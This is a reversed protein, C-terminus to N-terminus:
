KRLKFMIGFRVTYAKEFFRNDWGGNTQQRYPINPNAVHLHVQRLEYIKFPFNLDITFRNSVKINIRPILNFSAGYYKLFSDFVMSSKSKYEIDVYYPNLGIGLNFTVRKLPDSVIKNLEYRFSYTSITNNVDDNKRFGYSLPFQVKYTSKSIEPVFVEFEHFLKHKVPIHIAITFRTFNTYHHNIPQSQPYPYYTATFVDTNQYVKLSLNSQGFTTTVTVFLLIFLIFQM